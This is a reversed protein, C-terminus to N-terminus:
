ANKLFYDVVDEISVIGKLKNDEEIIPIAIIKYDRLKQAVKKLDDEPSSTVVRKTMVWDVPCTDYHGDEMLFRYIDAKVIMGVLRGLDDVVPAGNIEKINMVELAYKITDGPKLTILKSIMIDKIPVTFVGM